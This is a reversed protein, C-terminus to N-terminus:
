PDLLGLEQLEDAYDLLARHMERARVQDATSLNMLVNGPFAKRDQFKGGVFSLMIGIGQGNPDNSLIGSRRLCALSVPRGPNSQTGDPQSNGEAFFVALLKKIKPSAAQKLRKQHALEEEAAANADMADDLKLQEEIRTKREIEKLHKDRFEDRIRQRILEAEQGLETAEKTDREQVTEKLTGESRKQANQAAKLLSEIQTLQQEIALSQNQAEQRIERLRQELGPNPDLRLLAEDSLGSAEKLPQVLKQIREKLQTAQDFDLTIGHFLKEFAAISGPDAALTRGRDNTWLPVIENSWKTLHTQLKETSAMADDALSQISKLKDRAAAVAQLRENEQRAAESARDAESSNDTPRHEQLATANPAKGAAEPAPTPVDSPDPKSQFVSLLNEPKGFVTVLAAVFLLLVALLAVKRGSSRTSQMPGGEPSTSSKPPASSQLKRSTTAVPPVILEASPAPSLDRRFHRQWGGDQFRFSHRQNKSAFTLIQGEGAPKEITTTRFRMGSIAELQQFRQENITFSGDAHLEIGPLPSESHVRTWHGGAAHLSNDYRQRSAPDKVAEFAEQLELYRESSVTGAEPQLRKALTFYALQISDDSAVSPVGLVEYYTRAM